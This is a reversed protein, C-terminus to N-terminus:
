ISNNNNNNDNNTNTHTHTHSTENFGGSGNGGLIFVDRTTFLPGNFVPGNVLAGGSIAVLDADDLEGEWEKAELTAKTVAENNIM